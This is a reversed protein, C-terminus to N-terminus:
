PDSATSVMSDRGAQLEPADIDTDDGDCVKANTQHSQSVSGCWWKWDAAATRVSGSLWRQDSATSLISDRGGEIEPADIDAGDGDCM